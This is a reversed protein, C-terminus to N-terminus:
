FRDHYKVFEEDGFVPVYRYEISDYNGILYVIADGINVWPWDQHELIIIKKPMICNEFESTGFREKGEKGTFLDMSYFSSDKHFHTPSHSAKVYGELWLLYDVLKARKFSSYCNIRTDKRRRLM